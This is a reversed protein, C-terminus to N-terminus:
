PIVWVNGIFLAPGVHFRRSYGVRTTKKKNRRGAWPFCMFSYRNM